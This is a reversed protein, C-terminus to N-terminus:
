PPEVIVRDLVAAGRPPSRLFVVLEHRGSGPPDPLRVRGETAAGAVEVALRDGGDWGAEIVAGLQARGVLWGELWVRADPSLNLPIVVSQGDALRWGRRHSYRSFTGDPPIPQGGHRRVQAAEVDVVRDHRLVVVLTVGVAVMLWIAVGMRLLVRLWARSWLSGFVAIAFAACIMAPVWVTAATPVLFSPILFQLDAALRRALVDTLWWRGDGPNISFHPRTVLAWWMCVSPVALVEALRRWRTPRWLLMGWTLAFAPLLPVLYRAPPAGGGYWEPSHLLAVVTVLGGALMGREAADGRRWLLGFSAAAALLLPATFALGGAPDFALGGVVKVALVPDVPLLHVVRRYAGFPHGMTVWGVVLAALAACGLVLAGVITSVRDRRWWAGAASPFAILGLRTKMAAALLAVGAAAWRGGPSSAGSLILISAILTAGPLEVWIQTAYTALPYSVALGLIVWRIRSEPIGLRRGRSAILAALLAGVMALLVLAGTRGAVAFGPLLLAALLPSHLLRESVVRGRDGVLDDGVLNNSLDLDGDGILSEMIRLHYPEDGYMPPTLHPTALALPLLMAAVVRVARGQQLWRWSATIWAIVFAALALDVSHREAALRLPEVRVHAAVNGMVLITWPVVASPLRMTGSLWQVVVVVLAAAWMWWPLTWDRPPVPAVPGAAEVVVVVNDPLGAHRVLRPREGAAVSPMSRGAVRWSAASGIRSPRWIPRDPLNHRAPKATGLSRHTAEAWDRGAVLVDETESTTLMAAPVGDELKRGGRVTVDVIYPGGSGAPLTVEPRSSTLRALPWEPTPGQVPGLTAAVLFWCAGALASPLRPTLAAAAVVGGIALWGTVALADGLRIGGWPAVAVGLFGLAAVAPMWQHHFKAWRERSRIWPLAGVAIVTVALAFLPWRQLPIAAVVLGSALASGTGAFGAVGPVVISAIVALTGSLVGSGILGLGGAARLAGGFAAWLVPRRRAETKPEAALVAATAAVALLPAILMRRLTPDAVLLLAAAVPILSMEALRRRWGIPAYWGSPGFAVCVSITTWAADVESVRGSAALIWALVSLVIASMWSPLRTRFSVGTDPMQRLIRPV